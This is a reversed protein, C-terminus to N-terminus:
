PKVITEKILAVRCGNTSVQHEINRLPPFYLKQFANTKKDLSGVVCGGATLEVSWEFLTVAYELLQKYTQIGTMEMM